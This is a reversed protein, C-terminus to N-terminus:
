RHPEAVGPYCLYM